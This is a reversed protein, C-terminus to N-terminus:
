RWRTWPHLAPSSGFSSASAVNSSGRRHPLRRHNPHLHPTIPVGGAHIEGYPRAADLAVRPPVSARGTHCQGIGPPDGGGIHAPTSVPSPSSCGIVPSAQLHLSPARGHPVTPLADYEPVEGCRPGPTPLQVIAVLDSSVPHCPPPLPPPRGRALEQAAHCGAVGTCRRGHQAWRTPPTVLMLWLCGLASVPPSSCPQAPQRLASPGDVPAKGEPRVAQPSAKAGLQM